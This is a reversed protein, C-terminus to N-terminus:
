WSGSAGGGGSMGGGGSFGGFGGGGGGSFGGFGGGQFPGGWYIRRRGRGSYGASARVLITIVLAVLFFVGLLTLLPARAPRNRSAGGTYAGRTAAVLAEATAAIAGEPDNARLRPLLERQAIRACTADTLRDELGYGVEIRWKRDRLYLAVLVGNDKGAQGLKWREFIRNTLDDVDEGDLTQFFAFAIQTSSSAEFDTLKREVRARAAPALMGVYDSVRGQPREPIDFAIAATAATAVLAAAFAARM